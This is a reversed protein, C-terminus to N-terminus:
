KENKLQVKVAGERLIRWPHETVDIVTSALKSYTHGPVVFDVLKMLEPDLDEMAYPTKEGPFNASSGVIPVDAGNIIALPVPHNPIRVGLTDRRRVLEPVTDVNCKLVITLGGPWYPNVLKTIVEEDVPQLFKSAMGLNSILVPTAKNEPRRRLAFLRKVADEDDMRCGIGFATDTPFIIVGGKKVVDIAKAIVIDM